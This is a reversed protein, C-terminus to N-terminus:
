IVFPRGCTRSWLIFISFSDASCVQPWEGAWWRVVLWLSKHVLRNRLAYPLRM